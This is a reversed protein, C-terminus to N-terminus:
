RRYAQTCRPIILRLLTSLLDYVSPPPAVCWGGGSGVPPEQPTGPPGWTGAAQDARGFNAVMLVTPTSHPLVQLQGPFCANLSAVSRDNFPKLTVRGPGAACSKADVCNSSHPVVAGYHNAFREYREISFRELDQGAITVLRHHALADLLFGVQEPQLNQCLDIGVYRRGAGSPALPGEGYAEAGFLRRLEGDDHHVVLEPGSAALATSPAPRPRLHAGVDRLRRHAILPLAATPAPLESELGSVRRSRRGVM